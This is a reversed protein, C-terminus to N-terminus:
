EDKTVEHNHHAPEKKEPKCLSCTTQTGCDKNKKDRPNWGCTGRTLRSKGTLILSIALGVLALAILVAAAIITFLLESM